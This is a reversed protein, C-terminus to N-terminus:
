KWRRSLRLCLRIGLDIGLYEPQRRHGTSVPHVEAGKDAGHGGGHNLTEDFASARQAREDDALFPSLEVDGVEVLSQRKVSLTPDFEEAHELIRDRLDRGLVPGLNRADPTLGDCVSEIPAQVIVLSRSISWREPLNTRPKLTLCFWILPDPLLKESSVRGRRWTM